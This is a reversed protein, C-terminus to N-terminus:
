NGRKAKLEKLLYLTFNREAIYLKNIEEASIIKKYKYYYEKEIEAIQFKLDVNRDLLSEYERADVITLLKAKIIKIEEKLISIKNTKENYLPWFQQAETVGLIMENSIFAIKKNKFFDKKSQQASLNLTCLCFLTFLLKNM